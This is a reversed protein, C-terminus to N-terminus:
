PVFYIYRGDFVGGWYGETHASVGNAGPDFASWSSINTFTEQTDFRLVEGHPEIGNIWPVLYIYRGDFVGGIYGDPDIGVSNDGADFTTWANRESLPSFSTLEPM